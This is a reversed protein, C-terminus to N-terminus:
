CREFVKYLNPLSAIQLITSDHSFHKPPLLSEKIADYIVHETLHKWNQQLNNTDVKSYFKAVERCINDFCTQEVSWEVETSLRLIFLPIEAQNPFYDQLLVPLSRLNGRKDIVIAFYEKLMEAKELLLEKVNSAIEEKPGDGEDWGAEETELGLMALDYIPLPESFKIVGYNAFDYLMIEYFLEEALRATNCIYLNVDSQVLALEEDVCGVFTMGSIINRLGEHYNDEVTKRLKLVSTLRVERRTSNVSYSKFEPPKRSSTQDEAGGPANGGSSGMKENKEPTLTKDGEAGGNKSGNLVDSEKNENNGEQRSSKDEDSSRQSGFCKFVTKLARDAVSSNIDPPAPTDNSSEGDSSFLELVEKPLIAGGEYNEKPPAASEVVRPGEQSSESTPEDVLSSWHSNVLKRPNEPTKLGEELGEPEFDVLFEKRPTAFMCSSVKRERIEENEENKEENGTEPTKDEIGATANGNKDEIEEDIRMSDSGGDSKTVTFNFKDLKQDSADTRIMEKACVKRKEKDFEPLVKELVDKTIDVQPLRAQVYFTRSSNSKSLQEDLAVKVREIITDEHLFRVEHKTPHVNVDINGPNIDLSLYCWPHTKKPLYISYLDELMKKMPSSDVLRHNIFLIFTLRKNSYNPNTLLCHMRFQLSEDELEIDLLDRTINSGYLIKINSIKSSNHPTRVAPLAEGQKKLTFGVTPNHISYKTVVESIRSFEESPSALAKKRTSVNYFLNEILITTGQNGALPKPPGKLKGDHYLAKYAVKDEITKTIITLHAVHSMSALAEGRFGFTSISKLDDFKKLKSTTFRECVIALDDKRIGTGNDQIQLSKLGGDKVTIQINTSKADLSNEILEKLANAPRQIVEGAAIRNVVVEDLKQIKGPTGM